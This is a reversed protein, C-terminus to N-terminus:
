NSPTVQACAPQESLWAQAANIVPDADTGYTSWDIAVIEDPIVGELHTSGTRDIMASNALGIVTGDFLPLGGIATTAGATTEGFSRTNPKGVFALTTVEGSSGTQPGTLVAVPPSSNKLEYESEGLYDSVLVEDQRIIGDMYSVWYRYGGSLEWGVFPGNGLIPGVSSIMPSYTGGTDLRLDVIWGCTPAQDVARLISDATNVYDLQRGPTTFGPVAIYGIEGQLRRGLPPAYRTYDGAEISLVIPSSEDARQVTLVVSEERWMSYPDYVYPFAGLPEGNVMEITDGNQLGASAANGDPYITVVQNDALLFGYGTTDSFFDLNDPRLMYSHNDGAAKLAAFVDAIVAQAMGMSPAIEMNKMAIREILEWDVSSSWYARAKLAEIVSLVYAEPSVRDPSFSMSTAISGLHKSDVILSVFSYSTDWMTFPFDHPVILVESSRGFYRAEFQCAHHNSWTTMVIASAGELFPSEAFGACAEDLSEGPIPQSVAFGDDGIFDYKGIPDISWNRPIQATLRAFQGIYLKTDPEARSSSPAIGAVVLLVLLVLVSTRPRRALNRKM